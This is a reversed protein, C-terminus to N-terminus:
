NSAPLGLEALLDEYSNMWAMRRLFSAPTAAREWLARVAEGVPDDGAPGGPEDAYAGHFAFYAQNLKRIRYGNEWFILRRAEMYAEAQEIEGDALLQDVKLRTTRMEARFDFAPSETTSEQSPPPEVQPPAPPPLLDPYYHALVERGVAQGVLSATTENMTRLEATTSYNLGLPRFALYNHVWEHVVVETIWSLATSELIMTPYTGLGGVPVVLASVNEYQEVREELAVKETLPLDVRLSIGADQRIIDRPSIILSSPLQAFEFAVPPFVIGGLGLNLDALVYAVQEQLIGEALPRIGEAKALLRDLERTLREVEASSRTPDPDGFAIELDSRTMQLEGVLVLYERVLDTRNTEDLFHTTGLGIYSLKALVASLTWGLFDFEYPNTYLSMRDAPNHFVFTSGGLLGLLVLFLLVRRFTVWFEWLPIHGRM